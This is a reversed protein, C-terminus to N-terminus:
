RSIQLIYTCEETYVEYVNESMSTVKRILNEDNIVSLEGKDNMCDVFGLSEGIIPIKHILGLHVPVEKFWKSDYGLASDKDSVLIGKLIYNKQSGVYIEDVVEYGKGWRANKGALDSAPQSLRTVNLVGENSMGMGNYHVRKM